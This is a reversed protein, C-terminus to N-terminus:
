ILVSFKMKITFNLMKGISSQPAAERAAEIDVDLPQSHQTEVNDHLVGNLVVIAEHLPHLSSQALRKPPM